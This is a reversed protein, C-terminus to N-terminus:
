GEMEALIADLDSDAFGETMSVSAGEGAEVSEPTRGRLENALESLTQFQFVDTPLPM